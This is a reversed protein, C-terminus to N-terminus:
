CPRHAVEDCGLGLHVNKEPAIAVTSPRTPPGSSALPSPRRSARGSQIDLSRADEWISTHAVAERWSCAALQLMGLHADIATQTAADLTKHFRRVMCRIAVALSRLASNRWGEQDCLKPHPVTPSPERLLYRSKTRPDLAAHTEVQLTAELWGGVELLVQASGRWM